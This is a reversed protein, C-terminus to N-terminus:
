AHPRGEGPDTSCWRAAGVGLLAGAVTDVIYHQGLLFTAALLLVNMPLLMWFLTPRRWLTVQCVMAVAAHISPLAIFYGLGSVPTLGQRLAVVDAHLAVTVAHTLSNSFHTDFSAPFSLMPGIAPFILFTAGAVLYCCGIARLFDVTSRRDDSVALLALLPQFSLTVYGNELVRFAAHSKVIPFIADYTVNQIFWGYAWLDLTRLAPDRLRNGAAALLLYNLDHVALLM